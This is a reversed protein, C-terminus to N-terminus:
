RAAAGVAALDVTGNEITIGGTFGAHGADSSSGPTNDASLVLTGAGDMILSGSGNGGSGSMDAIM